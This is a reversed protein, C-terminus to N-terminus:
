KIHRWAQRKVIKEINQYTVDYMAAIKRLSFRRPIYMKRIAVIDSERLKAKFHDEGRQIRGRNVKDRANDLHTGLYLHGPNICPPNDCHHLILMGDPIRGHTLEWAVRHAMATEEKTIVLGYEYKGNKRGMWEWCGWKASFDVYYWFDKIKM